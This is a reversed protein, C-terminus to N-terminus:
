RGHSLLSCEPEYTYLAYIGGGLVLNAIVAALLGIGIANCLFPRRIFGWSAGVLKMTHITFRRAYVGLKVTNNILSFSVCTLLVALVLLVLNIKQLNTNVSDMLDQPYTIDTVKSDRKLDKSIWKLSDSNAYQAKLQLEISAVFPNTGLFESPGHGHGRDTGEPGAGQKYIDSSKHLPTEELRQM